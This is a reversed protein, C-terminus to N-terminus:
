MPVNLTTALWLLALAAAAWLWTRAGNVDLWRRSRKRRAIQGTTSTDSLCM